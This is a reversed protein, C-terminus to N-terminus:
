NLSVIADSLGGSTLPGSSTTLHYDKHFVVVGNNTSLDKMVKKLRANSLEEVEISDQRGDLGVREGVKVGSPVTVLDLGLLKKKERQSVVLVVGSTMGSALNTAFVIHRNQLQDTSIGVLGAVTVSHPKDEGIDLQLVYTDAKTQKEVVVVKGVRFNLPLKKTPKSVKQDGVLIDRGLPLDPYAKLCLETNAEINKRLPALFELLVNAIGEKLDGSMLKNKDDSNLVFASEVEDISKFVQPGGWKEKRPAVFSLGKKHLDRFLIHRLIALLGNGESIGDVSYAL